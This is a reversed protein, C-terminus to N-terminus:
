FSASPAAPYQYAEEEAKENGKNKSGFLPLCCGFISGKIKKEKVLLPHELKAEALTSASPAPSEEDSDLMLAMEHNNQLERNLNRLLEPVMMLSMGQTLDLHIAHLGAKKAGLVHQLSDDIFVTEEAKLGQLRLLAKFAEPDPKKKGLRFSYYEQDFCGTFVPRREDLVEGKKADPCLSAFKEYHISNTNSFLFLKSFQKRLGKILALREPPLGIFLANWAEDIQQDTIKPPLQFKKRLAERFQAASIQGTEFADIFNEQGKQNYIEYFNPAGLAAFAEATRKFDIDIIVGGMDLIVNRIFM